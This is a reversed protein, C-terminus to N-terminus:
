TGNVKAGNSFLEVPDVKVLTQKGDVIRFQFYDGVRWGFNDTRLLSDLVLDENEIKWDYDVLLLPKIEAPMTKVMLVLLVIM